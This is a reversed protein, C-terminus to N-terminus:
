LNIVLYLIYFCDPEFLIGNRYVLTCLKKL